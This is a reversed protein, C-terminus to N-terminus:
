NRIKGKDRSKPYSKQNVKVRKKGKSDITSKGQKGSGRTLEFLYAVSFSVTRNAVELNDSFTLLRTQASEPEGYFSHGWSYRFDLMIKQNPLTNFLLGFGVDLGVQMRREDEIYMVGFQQQNEGFELKYNLKGFSELEGGSITGKGGLWYNFNPGINFYGKFNGLLKNQFGHSIRLLIPLDIFHYTAQHDLNAYIIHLNKGKRSYNLETQLSYKNSIIFNLVVGAQYSLKFNRDYIQKEENDAFGITTLLPGAKIGVLYQANVSKVFAIAFIILIVKITARTM